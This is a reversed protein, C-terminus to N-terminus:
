LSLAAPLDGGWSEGRGRILGVPEIRTSYFVAKFGDAMVVEGTTPLLDSTSGASTDALPILLDTTPRLGLLTILGEATLLDTTPPIVGPRIIAGEGRLDTTADGITLPTVGGTPTTTLSGGLFNRLDITCGAVVTIAAGGVGTISVTM